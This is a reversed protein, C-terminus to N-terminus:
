GQKNSEQPQSNGTNKLYAIVDDSAYNDELFPILNAVDDRDLLIIPQHRSGDSIDVFGSESDFAPNTNGAKVVDELVSILASIATQENYAKDM